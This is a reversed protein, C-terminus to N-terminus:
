GKKDGIGDFRILCFEKNLYEESDIFRGFVIIEGNSDRRAKQTGLVEFSKGIEPRSLEREALEKTLIFLQGRHLKIYEPLKTHEASAIDDKSIKYMIRGMDCENENSVTSVYGIFM